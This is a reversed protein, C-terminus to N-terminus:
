APPGKVTRKRNALASFLPASLALSTARFAKAFQLELSALRVLCPIIAIHARSERRSRNRAAAPFTTLLHLGILSAHECRERLFGAIRTASFKRLWTMSIAHFKLTISCPDNVGTGEAPQFVLSLNEQIPGAIMQARAQRM